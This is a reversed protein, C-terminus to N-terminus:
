GLGTPLARDEDQGVTILCSLGHDSSKDGMGVANRRLWTEPCVRAETEVGCYSPPQGRGGWFTSYLGAMLTVYLYPLCFLMATADCLSQSSTQYKIGPRCFHALVHM